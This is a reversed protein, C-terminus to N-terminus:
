GSGVDGSTCGEGGSGSNVFTGGDCGTAPVGSSSDMASSCTASDSLPPSPASFARSLGGPPPLGANCPPATSQWSPMSTVAGECLPVSPISSISPISSNMAMWSAARAAPRFASAASARTTPPAGRGAARAASCVTRCIRALARSRGCSGLNRRSRQALGATARRTRSTLPAASTSRAAPKASSAPDSGPSHRRRSSGPRSQTTDLVTCVASVLTSSIAAGIDVHARWAASPPFIIKAAFTSCNLPSKRYVM